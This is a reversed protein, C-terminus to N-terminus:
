VMVHAIPKQLKEVEAGTGLYAAMFNKHTRYHACTMLLIATCSIVSLVVAIIILVTQVLEAESKDEGSVIELTQIGCRLGDFGKMCMCVPEQLDEMFKCFGHICFGLHTSTCPDVMISASQPFGSAYSSHEPDFTTTTTTTRKNRHRNRREKSRLKRGKKGSAPREASAPQLLDVPYVEESHEEENDDHDVAAGLLGEGSSVSGTEQVLGPSFTVEFGLAGVVSCVICVCM